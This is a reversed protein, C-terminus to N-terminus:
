GRVENGPDALAATLYAAIGAEWDPMAIGLAELKRNALASYSPRRAAVKWESASIPEIAGEVEALELAKTAYDYWSIAGANCAHYLGYAGTAILSRIAEALHGAFTPSAIVDSVARITEGSRAQKIIRDIFTGKSKSAAAGYVGCTRIVYAKTDTRLVLLEGALKSVAYASLPRPVDEETYPAAKAGDFVYDTSITVLAIDRQRCIAAMAEVAIANAAFAKAPQSECADVNHFAACNVLLDAHHADIVRAIAEPDLIDLDAHSPALIADGAWRARIETGLQGSGGLLVVNM